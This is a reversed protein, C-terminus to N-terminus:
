CRLGLAPTMVRPRAEPKAFTSFSRKKDQKEGSEGHEYRPKGITIRVRTTVVAASVKAGTRAGGSMYAPM